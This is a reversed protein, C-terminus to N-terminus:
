GGLSLFERKEGVCVKPVKGEGVGAFLFIYSSVLDTRYFLTSFCVDAFVDKLRTGYHQTELTATAGTRMKCQGFGKKKRAFM